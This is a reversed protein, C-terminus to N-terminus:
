IKKRDNKDRTKEKVGIGNASYATRVMRGLKVTQRELAMKAAREEEEDEGYGVEERCKKNKELKNGKKGESRGHAGVRLCNEPSIPIILICKTNM